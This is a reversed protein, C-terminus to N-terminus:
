FKFTLNWFSWHWPKEALLIQYYSATNWPTSKGFKLIRWRKRTFIVKVTRCPHKYKCMFIQEMAQGSWLFNCLLEIIFSNWCKLVLISLKYIIKYFNFCVRVSWLGSSSFTVINVSCVMSQYCKLWWCSGM